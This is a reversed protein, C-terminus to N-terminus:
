ELFGAKKLSEAPEAGDFMPVSAKQRGNDILVMYPPDGFPFTKKLLDVDTTITASFGTHETFYQAFQPVRTAVGMRKVDSGWKLKAMKKAADNCHMCEPDFFYLAIKGAQMSYPKGDVLVTEPAKTGSNKSESIAFSVGAFLAVSALIMSATKLGDSRRAWWGAIVAMLLMVGDGIFFEPGVARKLWPFCSCDAGRLKEYNIAFYGLFAVLM